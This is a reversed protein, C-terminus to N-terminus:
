PSAAQPLPWASDFARVLQGPRYRGPETTEFTWRAGRFGYVGVHMGALWGSKFKVADAPVALPALKEDVLLVSAKGGPPGDHFLGQFKMGPGSFFSITVANGEVSDVWGALGREN